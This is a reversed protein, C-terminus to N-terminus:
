ATDSGSASSHAAEPRVFGRVLWAIILTLAFWAAVIGFFPLKIDWGSNLVPSDPHLAAKVPDLFIDAVLVSAVMVYAVDVIAKHLRKDLVLWDMLVVIGAGVLLVLQTILRPDSRAM